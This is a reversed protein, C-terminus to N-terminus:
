AARRGALFARRAPQAPQAPQEPPAPRTLGLAALATERALAQSDFGQMPSFLACSEHFGIGADWAGLFDFRECGFAHERRQGVRGEAAQAHAPLRVLSMFWPTVLVGEGVPEGTQADPTWEFGVTEVSLAPNLLPLGQMREAQVQRYHAALAQERAALNSPLPSV